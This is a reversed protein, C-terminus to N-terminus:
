ETDKTAVEQNLTKPKHRVIMPIIAEKLSDVLFLAEELNLDYSGFFHFSRDIWEELVPDTLLKNNKKKPKEEKSTKSTKRSSTTQTKM